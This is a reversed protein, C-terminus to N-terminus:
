EVSRGVVRTIKLEGFAIALVPTGLSKSMRELTAKGEPTNEADRWIAKAEHANEIQKSRDVIIGSKDPRDEEDGHGLLWYCKFEDCISPKDPDDYITCNQCSSSTYRGPTPEEQMDPIDVLKNCPVFAPKTWNPTEVRYYICCAMCEGCERSMARKNEKLASLPILIPSDKSVKESM